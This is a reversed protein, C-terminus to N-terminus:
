NFFLRNFFFFIKYNGNLCKKIDIFIAIQCNSRMGSIVQKSGPFDESFHIHQRKM